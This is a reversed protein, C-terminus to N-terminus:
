PREGASLRGDIEQLVRPLDAVSAIAYHAGAALMADRGVDFRRTRTAPDLAALEAASLGFLNGSEVVGVTWTGANLGAAIGVETDDVTVVAAPPYVALRKMNEFIMWPAPRGAPVETAAVVADVHLDAQRARAVLETMLPAAYGSSSGIAMARERCWALSELAGPIIDAHAALLNRQLPLFAEYLKDVDDDTAARGHAERWAQAIRPVELLALIHDRKERGMPGRAEDATIPTNARRFIERFAETPARSGHDVITGAWDFIVAKVATTSM